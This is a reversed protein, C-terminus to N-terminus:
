TSCLLTWRERGAKFLLISGDPSPGLDSAKSSVENIKMGCFCSITKTPHFYVQVCVNTHLTVFAHPWHLILVNSPSPAPVASHFLCGPLAGVQRYLPFAGTENHLFLHLAWAWGPTFGSRHNHCGDRDHALEM